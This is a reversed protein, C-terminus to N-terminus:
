PAPFKTRMPDICVNIEVQNVYGMDSAQFHRRDASRGVCLPHRRRWSARGSHCVSAGWCPFSSSPLHIPPRSSKSGHDQACAEAVEHRVVASVASNNCFTGLVRSRARAVTSVRREQPPRPLLIGCCAGALSRRSARGGCAVSRLRVPQPSENLAVVALPALRQGLSRSVPRGRSGGCHVGHFSFLALRLLPAPFCFSGRAM